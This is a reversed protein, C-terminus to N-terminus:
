LTGIGSVLDARGEGPPLGPRRRRHPREEVAAAIVPSNDVLRQATQKVHEVVM